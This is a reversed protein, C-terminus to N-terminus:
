WIRAVTARSCSSLANALPTSAGGTTASAGLVSIPVPDPSVTTASGAGTITSCGTVTSCGSAVGGASVGGGTGGTEEAGTLRPASHRSVLQLTFPAGRGSTASEFTVMAKSGDPLSLPLAETLENEPVKRKSGSPRNCHGREPNMKVLIAPAGSSM